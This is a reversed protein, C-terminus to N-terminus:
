RVTRQRVTNQRQRRGPWRPRRRRPTTEEKGFRIWFRSLDASGGCVTEHWLSWSEQACTHLGEERALLMITQMIIGLHAWQGSGMFRDITFFLAVPAGFCQFNNAMQRLRAPRDDRPIGISAYLDEGCKFRRSRYPDPLKPPYINFETVEGRPHTPQKSAVLQKLEALADGGVVHIHWPQLNGGSPAQRSRDIIRHVTEFAVPEDSFARVSYRSAVAESVTM